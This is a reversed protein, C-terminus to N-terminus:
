IDMASERRCNKCEWIPTPDGNIEEAFPDAGFILNEYAGCIACSPMTLYVKYRRNLHMLLAGTKEPNPCPVIYKVGVQHLPSPVM